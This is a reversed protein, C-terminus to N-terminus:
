IKFTTLVPSCGPRPSNGTGKSVFAITSKHIHYSVSPQTQCYTAQQATTNGPRISGLHNRQIRSPFEVATKLCRFFLSQFHLQGVRPIRGVTHKAVHVVVPSQTGVFTSQEQGLTTAALPHEQPYLRRLRHSVHKQVMMEQFLMLTTIRCEHGLQGIVQHGPAFAFQFYADAICLGHIYGRYAAIKIYVTSQVPAHFQYHGIIDADTGIVKSRRAYKESLAIHGLPLGVQLHFGHQRRSTRREIVCLQFDLQPIAVLLHVFTYGATQQGAVAHSHFSGQLTRVQPVSHVVRM